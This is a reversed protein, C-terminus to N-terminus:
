RILTLAKNAIDKTANPRALAKINKSLTDLRDGNDLVELAKAVLQSVADKDLIIDAANKSVM